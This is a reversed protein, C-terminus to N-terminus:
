RLGRLFELVAANFREPQELNSLHGAEPIVVLTSGSIAAHMRRASDPPTLQDAEGVVILVPVAIKSLLPFSDPRDAMAQLAAALASASATRLIRRTETVIEPRAALTGPTIMQRLFEDLFGEPGEAAIRAIAAARRAKGEPTDAEARTDLLMLGKIGDRHRALYRFLVYGGLSFGGIVVASLQLHTVLARIDDALDDLTAPTGGSEGFGRLDPAVVRHTAALADVQRRWMERSLAFGHLLVVPPGTGVDEYAIEVGNLAIKM